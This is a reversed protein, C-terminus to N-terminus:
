EYSFRMYVASRWAGELLAERTREPTLWYILDDNGTQLALPEGEVGPQIMQHLSDELLLGFGKAGHVAILQPDDLDKESVFSIRVEPQGELRVVTGTQKGGEELGSSICDRLHL